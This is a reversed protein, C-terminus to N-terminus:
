KSSDEEQRMSDNTTQESSPMMHVATNELRQGNLQISRNREAVARVMFQEFDMRLEVPDFNVNEIQFDAIGKEAVQRMGISNKFVIMMRLLVANVGGEFESTIESVARAIDMKPYRRIIRSPKSLMLSIGDYVLQDMALLEEKEFSKATRSPGNGVGELWNNRQYPQFSERIKLWNKAFSVIVDTYGQTLFQSYSFDFIDGEMAPIFTYVKDNAIKQLAELPTKSSGILLVEGIQLETLKAPAKSCQNAQSQVGALLAVFLVLSSALIRLM